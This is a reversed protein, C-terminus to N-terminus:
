VTAPMGVAAAGRPSSPRSRVSSWLRTRLASADNVHVACYFGLDSSVNSAGQDTFCFLILDPPETLGSSAGQLKPCYYICQTGLSVTLRYQGLPDPSISTLRSAVREQLPAVDCDICVKEIMALFGDGNGAYWYAWAYLDVMRNYWWWPDTIREPWQGAVTENV